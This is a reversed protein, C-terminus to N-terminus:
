IARIDGVPSRPGFSPKGVGSLEVLRAARHRHGPYVALLELMGADDVPRGVLAWGVLAPAHFDGVSPEDPDGWARQATEAATWVGIGPVARLRRLRDARPLTLSEELRYAAGAAAIAAWARGPDVGARHWEWSPIRRWVEASPVVRMPVPTPGPAPEGFRRLLERWSRRAEIGTVRQELVAPVLVEIVLGLSPLRLHPLRRWTSAIVPHRPEFGSVDDGAGLLAPVRDVVWGAGPGWAQARVEGAAPAVSLRLTAPGLPTRATRWATGDALMRQTPDGTGRQFPALLLGLSVPYPPVWTTEADPASSADAASRPAPYAPANM